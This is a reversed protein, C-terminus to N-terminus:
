LKKIKDIRSLRGLFKKGYNINRKKWTNYLWIINNYYRDENIQNNDSIFFYWNSINHLYSQHLLQYALKEEAINYRLLAAIAELDNLFDLVYKYFADGINDKDISSLTNHWSLIFSSCGSHSLAKYLIDKDITNLKKKFENISTNNKKM